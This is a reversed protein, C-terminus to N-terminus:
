DDVGREKGPEEGELVVYAAAIESTHSLSVHTRHVGLSEALARTTGHLILQPASARERRVEVENWCAGGSWGTGLAKFLAEKAAFRAAYSQEPSASARCCEVEASTFLRRLGRDPHRRLLERIRQVEVVDMGIGIIM